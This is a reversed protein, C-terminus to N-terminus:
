SPDELARAQFPSTRPTVAGSEYVACWYGRPFTAVVEDEKLCDLDGDGDNDWTDAQVNVEEGGHMKVVIMIMRQMYARV